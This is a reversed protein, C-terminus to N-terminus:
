DDPAWCLPGPDTQTWLVCYFFLWCQWDSVM